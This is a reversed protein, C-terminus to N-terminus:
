RCPELQQALTRLWMRLAGASSIRWRAQTPREGVLISEGNLANVAAFGDEDTVDDGVFVPRRGRFPPTDLLARIAAGKDAGGVRLEVVMKGTTVTLPPHTLAAAAAAAARAAHAVKPAERFHLALAHSKRELRTGPHATVFEALAAEAAAFGVPHAPPQSRRGDADRRELGHQGAMPLVMPSFLRDLDAISRGSILALAGDLATGLRALIDCLDPAVHVADPRHAIDLLSGDVDLFLAWDCSPM